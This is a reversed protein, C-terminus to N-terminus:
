ISKHNSLSKSHHQQARSGSLPASSSSPLLLLLLFLTLYDGVVIGTNKGAESRRKCVVTVKVQIVAHNTDILKKLM